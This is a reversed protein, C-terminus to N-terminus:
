RALDPHRRPLWHLDLTGLGARLDLQSRDGSIRAGGPLAISPNSWGLFQLPHLEQATWFLIVIGRFFIGLAITTLLAALMMEGALRRLLLQYILVGITVSLVLAAGIAVLPHGGLHSATTILFYGGLMMLEGHAMNLVRSVRYILAYGCGILAYIGALVVINVMLQM